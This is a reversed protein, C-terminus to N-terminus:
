NFGLQIYTKIGCPWDEGSTCIYYWIHSDVDSRLFVVSPLRVLWLLGQCCVLWAAGGLQLNPRSLLLLLVILGVNAYLWWIMWYRGLVFQPWYTIRKMLPYTFVLSLSAAGLAISSWPFDYKSYTAWHQGSWFLFYISSWLNCHINYSNTM